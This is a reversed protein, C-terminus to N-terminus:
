TRTSRRVCAPRCPRRASSVSGRAAQFPLGAQTFTPVSPLTPSRKSHALAIARLKGSKIHPLASSLTVFAMQVQGGM